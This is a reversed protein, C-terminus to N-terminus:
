FPVDSYDVDAMAIRSLLNKVVAERKVQDAVDYYKFFERLHATPLSGGSSTYGGEIVASLLEDYSIASSLQNRELVERLSIIAEQGDRVHATISLNELHNSIGNIVWTFAQRERTTFFVDAPNQERKYPLDGCDVFRKYEEDSMASQYKEFLPHLLNWVDEDRLISYVQNNNMSVRLLKVSLEADIQPKLKSLKRVAAHTQLFSESAALDGILQLVQERGKTESTARTDPRSGGKAVLTPEVSETALVPVLFRRLENADKIVQIDANENFYSTLMADRTLLFVPVDPNNKAYDEASLAICADKFGKDSGKEFPPKNHIVLPYVRRFVSQEDELSIVEFPISQDLRLAEEFTSFELEELASLNVNMARLVESKRCQAIEQDFARRKHEILEDLVVHPVKIDAIKSIAELEGRNGLLQRLNVSNVANTDVVVAPRSASQKEFPIAKDAEERSV